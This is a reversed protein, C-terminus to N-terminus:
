LYSWSSSSAVGHNIGFSVDHDDRISNKLIEVVSCICLSSTCGCFDDNVVYLLKCDKPLLWYSLM